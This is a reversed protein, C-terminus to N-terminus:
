GARWRRHASGSGGPADLFQRVPIGVFAMTAVVGAGEVGGREVDLQRCDQPFLPREWLVDLDLEPADHLDHGRHLQGYCDQGAAGSHKPKM